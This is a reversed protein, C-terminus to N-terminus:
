TSRRLSGGALSAHAGAHAQSEGADDGDAHGDGGGVADAGVEAEEVRGEHVHKGEEEETPGESAARRMM